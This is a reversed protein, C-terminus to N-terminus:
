IGMEKEHLMNNLTPLSQSGTTGGAEARASGPASTSYQDELIQRTTSLPNEGWYENPRFIGQTEGEAPYPNNHTPTAPASTPTTQQILGSLSNFAMKEKGRGTWINNFPGPKKQTIAM